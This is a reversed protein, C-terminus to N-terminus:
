AYKSKKIRKVLLRENKNGFVNIVEFLFKKRDKRRLLSYTLFVNKETKSLLTLFDYIKGDKEMIITFIYM